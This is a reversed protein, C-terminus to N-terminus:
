SGVSAISEQFRKIAKEICRKQDPIESERVRFAQWLAFPPVPSIIMHCRGCLTILNSLQDEGGRRRAKIHHVQLAPSKGCAQCIQKDRKLIATRIEKDM